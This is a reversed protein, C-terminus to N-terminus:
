LDRYHWVMTSLHRPHIECVGFAMFLTALISALVLGTIIAKTSFNSM